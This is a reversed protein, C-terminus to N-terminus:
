LNAGERGEDIGRPSLIIYELGRYAAGENFERTVKAKTSINV